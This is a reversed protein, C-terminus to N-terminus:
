RRQHWYWLTKIITVLIFGSIYNPNRGIKENESTNKTTAKAKSPGSGKQKWTFKLNVQEAL